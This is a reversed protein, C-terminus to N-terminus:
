AYGGLMRELQLCIALLGAIRYSAAMGEGREWAVAGLVKNPM